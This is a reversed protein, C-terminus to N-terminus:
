LDIKRNELASKITASDSYELETGTSLGRGLTTVKINNEKILNRIESEIYERTHEGESNLNLAVIIEKLGNKVKKSLIAKLERIRIRSQPDKDLIPLTGGLIFYLGNYMKTKEITHFDVDKAILMLISADRRKDECISCLSNKSSYFRFCSPCIHINDKLSLIEKTLSNRYENNKTLLFYGFREAQRPGIGPFDKFLEILKQLSDM